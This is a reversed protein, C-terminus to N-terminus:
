KAATGIQKLQNKLSQNGNVVEMAIKNDVQQGLRAIRVPNTVKFFQGYCYDSAKGMLVCLFDAVPWTGISAVTILSYIKIGQGYNSDDYLSQLGDNKRDSYRLDDEYCVAYTGDKAVKVCEDIVPQDDKKLRQRNKLYMEAINGPKETGISNIAIDGTKTQYTYNVYVDRSFNYDKLSGYSGEEGPEKLDVTHVCGSCCLLLGLALLVRLNKRFM